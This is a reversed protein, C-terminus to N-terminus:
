DKHIDIIRYLINDVVLTGHMTKGAIKFSWIGQGRASKNVANLTKLTDNYTFILAGMEMERGDVMKNMQFRYNNRTLKSAHYIATEDKCPSNKAQCLSTGKWTGTIADSEVASQGAGPRCVSSLVILFLINIRFTM